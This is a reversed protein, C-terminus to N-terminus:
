SCTHTAARRECLLVCTTPSDARTSGSQRRDPTHRTRRGSSRDRGIPLAVPPRAPPLAAAPQPPGPALAAPCFLGGDRLKRPPTTQPPTRKNLLALTQSNRWGPQPPPVAPTTAHINNTHTM